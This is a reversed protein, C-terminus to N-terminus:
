TLERRLVSAVAALALRTEDPRPERTTLRQLLLGRLLVVRRVRASSRRVALWLQAGDVARALADLRRATHLARAPAAM